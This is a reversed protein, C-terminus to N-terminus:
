AFIKGNKPLIRPNVIKKSILQSKCRSEWAIDAYFGIWFVTGGKLVQCGTNGHSDYM